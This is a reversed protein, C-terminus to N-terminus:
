AYMQNKLGGNRKEIEEHRKRQRAGVVVNWSEPCEQSNRELFQGEGKDSRTEWYVRCLYMITTRRPGIPSKQQVQSALCVCLVPLLLPFYIVLCPTSQVCGSRRGRVEVTERGSESITAKIQENKKMSLLFHQCEEISGLYSSYIRGGIIITRGGDHLTSMMGIHFCKQLM